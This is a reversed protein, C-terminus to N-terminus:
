DFVPYEAFQPLSSELMADRPLEGFMGPALLSRSPYSALAPSLFPINAEQVMDEMVGAFAGAAVYRRYAPPVVAGAAMAVGAATLLKVATGTVGTQPLGPINQAVIKAGAKGAVVALGDVVGGTLVRM